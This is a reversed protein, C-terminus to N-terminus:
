ITYSFFFFFHGQNFHVSFNVRTLFFACIAVLGGLQVLQVEEVADSGLAHQSFPGRDEPSWLGDDQCDQRGQVLKNAVQLRM